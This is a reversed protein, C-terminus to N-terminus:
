AELSVVQANGVHSYRGPTCTLVVVQCQKGAAAIAAGMGQLRQPDSWGLADDIMVPAGGDGPSVITACALRCLVGLQERAGTSLQNVDLMTGDLSRRVVRLDEDLEVAFTPGFVIRGLQDICEKFPGIYHQHAQQRNKAFTERLLRAAEARAEQREYERVVHNLQNGAEDYATQLGQEGRLDLSSRLRNQHDRNSQLEDIVRKTAQRANDLLAEVSDPDADSLQVNAENLSKREKAEKEQASAVTAILAEDTQGERDLALQNVADRKSSRAMEIKATRGAEDIQAGNLEAEANKAADDCTRLEVDCDTVLSSAEAEIRQAEDLDTPLPPNEPREKPYSTVRETLHKVKGLLVDSTLDRLERAIAKLAEKKNRQEDQREQAARRAETTDAVGVGECLRRYTEQTKRRQDALGKSEPGASVRMRAVNPIALVVEDEVLSRNVENVALEVIEDGIEVTMDCLATVEVSAAASGAASKAREDEIYAEEIQKAVEDDVRATELYAEAQRLTQEAALYRDHREKLQDVEILQRLYDRDAIARSLRGQADRMAADADKLAATADKSHRTVTALGQAADEAEAELAALDSASTDRTAILNQRRQWESSASDRQAGAASHIADLREVEGRLRDIANWRQDLERERKEYEKRTESLRTSEGVLSIMQDADREIDQLQRTLEAVRDQAEQVSQESSKRERRAQGTATWYKDYEEGIRTWLTEERDTALDGGAAHDLARGMSPLGFNPLMLETGQEIRLARWLKEDLTEALIAQLRDHAERGTLSERHPSMVELTTVPQRLWRKRYVLEYSGSSLSFEVEPGEDRGVPQVARVQATRSSDPLDIALQLGESISTKGVENPGEVITVGNQSFSVDSKVVGRYNRLQVRHLRM